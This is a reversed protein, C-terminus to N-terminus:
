EPTHPATSERVILEPMLITRQRVFPENNEESELQRHLMEMGMYGLKHTPQNIVSISPNTLSTWPVDDFIILSLDEPIKLGSKRIVFMAAEGLVNNAAFIATPPESLNLLREAANHGSEGKFTVIEQLSEDFQIGADALASRYGELRQRGTTTSIPGNIIGIRQHGLEILYKVADYSGKVNDVLIM